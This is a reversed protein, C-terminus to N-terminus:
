STYKKKMAAMKMRGSVPPGLVHEFEPEPNSEDRGYAIELAAVLEARTAINAVDDGVAFTTHWQQELGDVSHSPKIEFRGKLEANWKAFDIDSLPLPAAGYENLPKCMLSTAPLYDTKATKGHVAPRHVTLALNRVPLRNQKRKKPSVPRAQTEGDRYQHTNFRKKLDSKKERLEPDVKMLLM